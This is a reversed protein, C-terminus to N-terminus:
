DDLLKWSLINGSIVGELEKFTTLLSGYKMSLGLPWWEVATVVQGSFSM